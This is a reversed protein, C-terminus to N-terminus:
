PLKTNRQTFIRFINGRIGDNKFNKEFLQNLAKHSYICQALSDM